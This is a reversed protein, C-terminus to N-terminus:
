KLNSFPPVAPKWSLFWNFHDASPTWKVMSQLLDGYGFCTATVRPWYLFRRQYRKARIYRVHHVMWRYTALKGYEDQAVSFIKLEGLATQARDQARKWDLAQIQPYPEIGNAVRGAGVHFAQRCGLDVFVCGICALVHDHARHEMIWLARNRRRVEDPEVVVSSNTGAALRKEKPQNSM